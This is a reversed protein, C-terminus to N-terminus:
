RLNVPYNAEDTLFQDLIDLDNYRRGVIQDGNIALLSYGVVLYHFNFFDFNQVFSFKHGDKRAALKKERFSLHSDIAVVINIFNLKSKLMEEYSFNIFIIIKLVLM